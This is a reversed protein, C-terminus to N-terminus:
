SINFQLILTSLLPTSLLILFRNIIAFKALDLFASKILDLFDSKGFALKIFILKLISKRVELALFAKIYKYFSKSLSQNKPM